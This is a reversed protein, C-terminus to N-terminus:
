LSSTDTVAEFPFGELCFDQYPAFLGYGRFNGKHLFLTTNGKELKVFLLAATSLNSSVYEFSKEKWVTLM